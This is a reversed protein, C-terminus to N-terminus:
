RKQRRKRRMKQELKQFRTGGLGPKAEFDSIYSLSARLEQDEEIIVGFVSFVPACLM